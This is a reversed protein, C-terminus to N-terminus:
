ASAETEKLEQPSLKHVRVKLIRIGDIAEVTLNVNGIRITQGAQPAEGLTNFVLGAVSQGNPLDLDLVENLESVSLRADAVITHPDLEVVQPQEEEDYEDHIEGVIEELLDEITVLGVTGGYEDTVIFMPMRQSQMQKLVTNIPQFEHIHHVKRVFKGVPQQGNEDKLHARVLDKLHVIGIIQDLNDHYVPLRSYGEDSAMLKLAEDLSMSDEICLMDVRPTLVASTPTDDFTFASHVLESEEKDLLGTNGGLNVMQLIEEETLDPMLQGFRAGVAELMPRAVWNLLSVLPNLILMLVRLLPLWSYVFNERQRDAISKPFIEGLFLLVPTLLLSLGVVTLWSHTYHFFLYALFVVFQVDALWDSIMLTLLTKHPKTLLKLLYASRKDGEEARKQLRIRSLRAFASEYATAFGSIFLCLIVIGLITLSLRSDPDM